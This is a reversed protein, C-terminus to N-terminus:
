ISGYSANVDGLLVGVLDVNLEGVVSQDVTRGEPYKVNLRSIGGLSLTPDVFVFEQPLANASKAFIQLLSYADFATVRGDQNIDAAMLQYPTTSSVTNMGLALELTKFADDATVTGEPIAYANSPINVSYQGPALNFIDYASIKEALTTVSDTVDMKLMTGTADKESNTEVSTLSLIAQDQLQLPLKGSVTAVVGNAQIYNVPNLDNNYGGVRHSVADNVTTWNMLSSSVMVTATAAVSADLDIAFGFSRLPETGANLIKAVFTGATLDTDVQVKLLAKGATETKFIYPTVGQVVTSTNWFKPTVSLHVGSNLNALNVDGDSFRLTEIGFLQDTGDPGTIQYGGNSITRTYASRVGSFV